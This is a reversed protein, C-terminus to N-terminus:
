NIIALDRVSIQSKASDAIDRITDWYTDNSSLSSSEQNVDVGNWADMSAWSDCVSMGTADKCTDSVNIKFTVIDDAGNANEAHFAELKTKVSSMTTPIEAVPYVRDYMYKSRALVDLAAFAPSIRDSWGLNTFWWDDQLNADPPDYQHINRTPADTWLVVSRVTTRGDGWGAADVAHILSEIASEPNDGGGYASFQDIYSEMAPTDGPLEYFPSEFMAGDTSNPPSDFRSSISPVDDFLYDRFFIFKVRITGVTIGAGDLEAALDGPLNRMNDQVAQIETAMSGTADTIMVIDIDQPEYSPLVATSSVNIALSEYGFAGMLLTKKKISLDLRVSTDTIEFRSKVGELEHQAVLSQVLDEGIKRAKSKYKNFDSDTKIQDLNDAMYKASALAAIDALDQSKIQGSQLSTIEVAGLACFSVASIALAFILAFNGRQDLKFKQVHKRVKSWVGM